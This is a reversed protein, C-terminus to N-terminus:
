SKRQASWSQFPMTPPIVTLYLEQSFITVNVGGAGCASAMFGASDFPMEFTDSRAASPRVSYREHGAPRSPREAIFIKKPIGDRGNEQVLIEKQKRGRCWEQKFDNDSPATPSHM